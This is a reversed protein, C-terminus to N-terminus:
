KLSLQQKRAGGPGIQATTWCNICCSLLWQEMKNKPTPAEKIAKLKGSTPHIGSGDILFEWFEVQLMAIQCKEKKARLGAEQFHTLVTWLWQTLQEQDSASLLIDDFYPVVGLIGHLHCEMLNQFLGPAVRVHDVQESIGQAILKDLQEGVKPWLAFPARQPKLQIPALLHDLNFSIPTGTYKGLNGSFADRFKAELMRFVDRQVTNISTIRLGLAELWEIGLLSPLDKNVITLPLSGTFDKFKIITQHTKTAEENRDERQKFKSNPAKWFGMQPDHPCTPSRQQRQRHYTPQSVRCAEAIHGKCDCQWCITDKFRCAVRPHNGGCGACWPPTQRMESQGVKRNAKVRYIAEEEKTIKDQEPNGPQDRRRAARRVHASSVPERPGRFPLVGSESPGPGMGSERVPERKDAPCKEQTQHDPHPQSLFQKHFADVLAPAHVSTADEWTLDEQGYGKWEILYQFQRLHDREMAHYQHLLTLNASCVPQGNSFWALNIFSPCMALSAFDPPLCGPQYGGVPRISPAQHVAVGLGGCGITTDGVSLPRRSMQLGRQFKSLYDNAEPVLLNLQTLPFFQPHYGVNALFLTTQTSTHQSNNFAFEAVALYDSWNDQHQNVFCRLYQELMRIVKETGGDTGPHHASLLCIKMDLATMLVKWFQAIFQAGQDSVVWVPLGHLRFIHQIFICSTARAMPLGHCPIFHAMKMLMDVVVFVTTFGSSPPLDIMFDMSIAGWPREPTPLPQLLGPPLGQQWSPRSADYVHPSMPSFMTDYDPGGSLGLCSICHFIFGRLLVEPVYLRNCYRLLEETFSWPSNPGVEQKRQDVWADHWQAERIQARLDLPEQVTSFSEVPLVTQLLLQDEPHLYEPKWLLAGARQNCGSLIYTIHFNFWAFFLSWQIQCQNLKQTTKLFELNKHDTWVEVQHGAVKIALLEKEWITYNRESSNLKRSYYTCPFLTGSFVHAQLLVAGVAVNSVDAEVVFPRHPNTHKLIPEKMFAQKLGQFAQEEPASWWFPVKKQLLRTLPTTLSAFSPIFTRYYNAFRLLQQVDKVQRPTQWSLLLEVKSPEMLTGDTSIRHGLFQPLFFQCKELKTYLCNKQLWQLVLRLHHLHSERSNSYISINNLYVVVFQDLLDRFIDNMFHQFVASANTLGFPMITYEFHGYRTGFVMKWEDRLRAFSFLCLLLPLQSVRAVDVGTM